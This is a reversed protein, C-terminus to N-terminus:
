AAPELWRAVVQNRGRDKARYLGADAARVLADVTHRGDLSSTCGGSCTVFIQVGDVLIPARAIQARIREAAVLAGDQGTHPLVVIFEEGGYRGIADNPRVAARLRSGINRLVEDGGLHGYADNISKFHDIDLMVLGTPKGVSRGQELERAAIEVIAERNWVRTLLDVRSKMELEDHAITLNIQAESLAAVQLEHEALGALDRLAELEDESMDRPTGDAICLVGVNQGDFQLPVGAYFVFASAFPSDKVRPDLRADRILCIEDKLVTYHCYSFRRLVDLNDYGQISKLWAMKEGVIDIISMSVGFMRRALRTIKDFREEAPTGLLRVKQVAALRRIESSPYPAGPM